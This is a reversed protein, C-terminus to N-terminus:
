LYLRVGAYFMRGSLPGWILSADFFRSTPNLPDIIAQQQKYDFLNEAGIYAEYGNSFYYSFQAYVVFFSPSYSPFKYPEPNSATSPIRKKGFWHITIDYQTRPTIDRGSPTYSTTLLWRHQSTLPKEKWGDIHKQKSELYRYALRNSFNEIPELSLDMQFSNSYSGHTNYYRVEQPNYDLDAIIHNEFTTRYFDFSLTAEKYNFTFYHTVNMGYNWAREQELGYGFSRTASIHLSRSSAFIGPNDTFINATRYGRGAAFRFVWDNHPVYRLHFRPTVMWGYANHHDVRVGTILTVNELPTLTFEAFMGPVAEVRTFSLSSYWENYTDYLFSVGIRYKIYEVSPQKEYLINLYLSKEQGRYSNAGYRSALSFSSFAWQFGVSEFYESDFIYGSKGFIRFHENDSTYRFPYLVKDTNTLTGGNKKDNIYQASIHTEFGNDKLLEFIQSINLTTFRPSDMFYDNNHDISTRQTSAHFLTLSTLDESIIQRYHVNAEIRQENNGFLNVFYTNSTDTRPNRLGVDIQGTISEYGNIVQGVGKSVNIEQIWTGPLYTLGVNSIFGRLFPINGVTTQTYMGSLGLMEIQRTGTVADTFTVDVTANSQFSESLNCCAARTLERQTIVETKQFSNYDLYQPPQEGVVDITTTTSTLHRRLFHKLSFQQPPIYLTDTRFSIHRIVLLHSTQHKPIRFSGDNNTSTGVSTGAWFITAGPVPVENNLDDLEVIVGKLSNQSM